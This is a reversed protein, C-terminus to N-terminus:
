KGEDKDLMKMLYDVRYLKEQSDCITNLLKGRYEILIQNAFRVDCNYIKIFKSKEENTFGIDTLIEEIPKAKDKKKM